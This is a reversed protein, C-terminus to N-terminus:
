RGGPVEIALIRQGRAGSIADDLADRAAKEAPLGSGDKKVAVVVQRLEERGSLESRDSLGVVRFPGIERDHSVPRRGKKDPVPEAEAEAGDGLVLFVVNDSVRLGPVIRNQAVAVTRSTEGPNLNISADNASQRVDAFLVLEGEVLSRGVRRAVLLGRDEWRVASRFIAKDARVSVRVMVDDTLEAGARLNQSVGVLEITKTGSRIAILYIGGAVVGLVVPVLWGLSKKM